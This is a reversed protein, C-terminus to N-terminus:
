IQNDWINLLNLSLRKYDIKSEKHYQYDTDLLKERYKFLQDKIFNPLNIISNALCMCWNELDKVSKIQEFTVDFLKDSVKGIDEYAGFWESIFQWFVQRNYLDKAKLKRCLM